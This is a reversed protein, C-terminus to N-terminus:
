ETETEVGLAEKKKEFDALIAEDTLGIGLLEGCHKCKQAKAKILEACFPCEIMDTTM